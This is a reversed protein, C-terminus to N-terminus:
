PVGAVVPYPFLEAIFQQGAVVAENFRIVYFFGLLKVFLVAVFGDEEAPENGDDTGEGGEHCADAGHVVAGEKMIIHDATKHPHGEEGAGAIEKPVNGKYFFVKGM